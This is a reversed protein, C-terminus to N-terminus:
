QQGALWALTAIGFVLSPMGMVLQTIHLGRSPNEPNGRLGIWGWLMMVLAGLGVVIIYFALLVIAYAVATGSSSGGSDDAVLWAIVAIPFLWAAVMGLIMLWNVFRSQVLGRPLFSFVRKPFFLCAAAVSAGILILANRGREGIMPGGFIGKIVWPLVYTALPMLMVIAARRRLTPHKWMAWGAVLFFVGNIITSIFFVYVTSFDGDHYLLPGTWWIALLVQVAIILNLLIAM